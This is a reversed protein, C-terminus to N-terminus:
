KLSIGGATRLAEQLAAIADQSATMAEDYRESLALDQARIYLSRARDLAGQMRKADPAAAARSAAVAVLDEYSQYRASEGALAAAGSLGAGRTAMLKPASALVLDAAQEIARSAQAFDAKEALGQAQEVLERVREMEPPRRNGSRGASLFHSAQFTQVANLIRAYRQRMEEAEGRADPVLRVAMGLQRLSEAAQDDAAALNGAELAGRAGAYLGRAGSLLRLAEENGSASVRQAGASRFLMQDALKLKQAVAARRALDTDAAAGAGTQGLAAQAALALALWCFRWARGM